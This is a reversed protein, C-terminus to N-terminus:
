DSLPDITVLYDESEGDAAFGASSLGGSGSVRFRAMTEGTQAERPIAITQYTDGTQVPLDVLVHENADDWDGDRNFDFWASVFGSSTSNIEIQVYGNPELRGAFDIGDPAATTAASEGLFLPGTESPVATPVEPASTPSSERTSDAVQDTTCRTILMAVAVVSVVIAAARLVQARNAAKVM